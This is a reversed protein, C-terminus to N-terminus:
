GSGGLELLFSVAVVFEGGRFGESEVVQQGVGGDGEKGVNVFFQM